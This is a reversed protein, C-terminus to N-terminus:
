RMALMGMLNVATHIMVPAFITDTRAYAWSLCLGAPIYQLMAVMLYLPQTSGAYGVVHIACFAVVSVAYALPRSYRDLFGFIMGRYLTEEAIPVLFVSCIFMVWYQQSALSQINDNNANAFDPLYLYIVLNLLFSASWYLLFGAICTGIVSLFNKGFQRLNKGLYRHFAICIVLFNTVFFATNLWLADPRLGALLGVLGLLLPIAYQQAALYCIGFIYEARTMSNNLAHKM